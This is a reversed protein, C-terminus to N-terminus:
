LLASTFLVENGKEFQYKCIDEHLKTCLIYEILKRSGPVFFFEAAQM